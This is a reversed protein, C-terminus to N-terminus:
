DMTLYQKYDNGYAHWLSGDLFFQCFQNFHSALSVLNRHCCVLNVIDKAGDEHFKAYLTFPGKRVTRKSVRQNHWCNAISFPWLFLPIIWQYCPSKGYNHLRKGSPLNHAVKSAWKQCFRTSHPWRYMKECWLITETATGSKQLTCDSTSQRSQSQMVPNLSNHGLFM